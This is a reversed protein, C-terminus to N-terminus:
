EALEGSIQGSYALVDGFDMDHGELHENTIEGDGDDEERGGSTLSVAMSEESLLAIAAGSSLLLNKM